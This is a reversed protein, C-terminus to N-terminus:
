IYMPTGTGLSRISYRYLRYLMYLCQSRLAANDFFYWRASHCAAIHNDDASIAFPFVEIASKPQM